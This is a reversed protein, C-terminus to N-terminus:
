EDKWGLRLLAKRALERMEQDPHKQVVKLLPPIAAPSRADGMAAISMKRTNENKDEILSILLPVTASGGIRGLAVAVDESLGSSDRVLPELLPIADVDGIWGLAWVAARKIELNEYRLGDGITKIQRPDKRAGLFRVAYIRKGAEDSKAMRLLEELDVQQPNVWKIAEALYNQFKVSPMDARETTSSYAVAGGYFEPRKEWLVPFGITKERIANLGETSKRLEGFEFALKWKEASMCWTNYSSGWKEFETAGQPNAPKANVFSQPNVFFSDWHPGGFTRLPKFVSEASVIRVEEATENTCALLDAMSRGTEMHAIELANWIFLYNSKTADIAARFSKDEEESICKVVSVSLWTLLSLIRMCSTTMVVPTRM